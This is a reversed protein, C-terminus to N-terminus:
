FPVWIGDAGYATCMFYDHIHLGDSQRDSPQSDEAPHPFRRCHFLYQYCDADRLFFGSYDWLPDPPQGSSPLRNRCAAYFHGAPYALVSPSHSQLRTGLLGALISGVITAIALTSEAAGYYGANLMLVTRILFPLGVLLIGMVFFRSIATLLLMKVISTQEKIIYRM